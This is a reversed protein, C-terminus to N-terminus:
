IVEMGEKFKSSASQLKKVVPTTTGYEKEWVLIENIQRHLDSLDTTIGHQQILSHELDSLWSDLREAIQLLSQANIVRFIEIM